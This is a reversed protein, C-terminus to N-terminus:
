ATEKDLEPLLELNKLVAHLNVRSKIKEEVNM